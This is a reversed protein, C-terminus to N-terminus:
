YHRSVSTMTPCTALNRSETTKSLTNKTPPQTQLPTSIGGPTSGLLWVSSSFQELDTLSTAFEASAGLETEVLFGTLSAEVGRFALNEGSVTSFQNSHRWKSM